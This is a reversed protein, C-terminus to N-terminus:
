FECKLEFNLVNGFAGCVWANVAKVLNDFGFDRLRAEICTIEKM